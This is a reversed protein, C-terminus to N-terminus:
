AAAAGNAAARSAVFATILDEPERTGLMGPKLKNHNVTIQAGIGVVQTILLGWPGASMLWDMVAAVRPDAEAAFQVADALGPAALAVTAADALYAPDDLTASLATLAGVPIGLLEVVARRYDPRPPPTPKSAAKRPPPTARKQSTRAKPRRGPKNRPTGDARRGYPADDPELEPPPEAELDLDELMTPMTM